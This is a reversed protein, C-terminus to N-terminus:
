GNPARCIRIPGDSNAKTGMSPAVGALTTSSARGRTASQCSRERPCPLAPFAGEPRAGPRKIKLEPRAREPPRAEVLAARREQEAEVM